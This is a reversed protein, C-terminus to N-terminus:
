ASAVHGQVSRLRTLGRTLTLPNRSCSATLNVRSRRVEGRLPSTSAPACRLSRTLPRELRESERIPGEGAACRVIRSLRLKAEANKLLSPRWLRGVSEGAPLPSTLASRNLKFGLPAITHDKLAAAHRM